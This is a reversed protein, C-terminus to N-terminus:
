ACIFGPSCDVLTNFLQLPGFQAADVWTSSLAFKAYGLCSTHSHCYSHHFTISLYRTLPMSCCFGNAITILIYSVKSSLHSSHLIMCERNFSETLHRLLQQIFQLLPVCCCILADKMSFHSVACGRVSYISLVYSRKLVDWVTSWRQWIAAMLKQVIINM